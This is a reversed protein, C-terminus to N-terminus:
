AGRTENAVLSLRAPSTLQPTQPKQLPKRQAVRKSIWQKAEDESAFPGAVGFFITILPRGFVSRLRWTMWTDESEQNTHAMHIVAWWNRGFYYRCYATLKLAFFKLKNM